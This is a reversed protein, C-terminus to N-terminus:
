GWPQSGHERLWRRSVEREQETLGPCVTRAKHIARWFVEPNQAGQWNGGWRKLYARIKEEDLSKLAELRDRQFEDWQEQQEQNRDILQRLDSDKM